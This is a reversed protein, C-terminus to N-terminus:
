VTPEAGQTKSLVCVMETLTEGLTEIEAVEALMQVPPLEVRVTLPADDYVQLVPAVAAEM